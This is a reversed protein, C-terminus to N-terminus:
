RHDVLVKAPQVQAVKHSRYAIQHRRSECEEFHSLGGLPASASVPQIQPRQHRQVSLPHAQYQSGFPLFTQTGSVGFFCECRADGSLVSGFCCHSALLGGFFDGYDGHHGLVARSHRYTHLLRDQPPGKSPLLGRLGDRYLVNVPAVKKQRNCRLLMM